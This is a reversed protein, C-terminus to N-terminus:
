LYPDYRPVCYYTGLHAGPLNPALNQLMLKSLANGSTTLETMFISWETTNREFTWFRNPYSNASYLITDELPIM